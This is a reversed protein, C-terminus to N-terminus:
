PDEQGAHESGAQRPSPGADLRARRRAVVVALGALALLGAAAATLPATAGGTGAGRPPSRVEVPLATGDVSGDAAAVELRVAYAGPPVRRDEGDRLDWRTVVPGAETVGLDRVLVEDGAADTVRLRAMGPTATTAEVAVAELASPLGTARETRSVEASAGWGPPGSLTVQRGQRALRWTGLAQEVVTGGDAVIAFPGDGRVSGVRADSLGVRIREPLADSREPRTGAYYAALIDDYPEGDLARGLAGYQGMGVAHGWGRGTVVVEDDGVEIEFRSSPLTAPLTRSGDETRSPFRDPFRDPAVQSVFRRVAVSGLTVEDGDEGVFRVEANPVDVPGLREVEVVPTVRALSEGARTIEDFESRTFTVQWRHYPSIADAPDDTGVLAPRPGSSPFVVENPLTRGGSTSFYRALIPAGDEDVLVEGATGDVAARWRRGADSEQQAAGVFVQCDVTDCIDFGRADFAPRRAQYWAYTRAAVAQAKLAELHWRGPMEAVGAVYDDIPLDNILEQGDGDELRLEVTDLFRRGDALELAAGGEAVFRVVPGVTAVEVPQEPVEIEDLAPAEAAAPGVEFRTQPDDAALITPALALLLGLPLWGSGRRPGSRREDAASM